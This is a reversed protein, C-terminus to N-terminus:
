NKNSLASTLYESIRTLDYRFTIFLSLAILLFFFIATITQEVQVSVPRGKIKEIILFILKGGDLAPIPLLNFVAVCVSLSGIFYLFFGLGYAAANAIYVTIGLPGAFSTGEPAKGTTFLMSFLDWVGAFTTATTKWTYITGQIPAEYWPCKEILTAMRQIGVGVPGQGESIDSRPTLLIEQQQGNRQIELAIQSGKNATTIEKFQSVTDIQTKTEGVKIAKVSDGVQLGAEKAASNDLIQVLVIRPNALGGTESDSVPLDSGIAFLATFIVIAAVWFAVV